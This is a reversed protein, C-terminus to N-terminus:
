LFIPMYPEIPPKTGLTVNVDVQSNDRIVTVILLDNPVTKELYSTAEDFNRVTTSNFAIIIDGERLIGESPGSGIVGYYQITERSTPIRIGYTATINNPQGFDYRLDYAYIGLYSQGVLHQAIWWEQYEAIDPDSLSYPQNGTIERLAKCLADGVYTNVNKYDADNLAQILVPVAEKAAPGISGLVNAALAIMKPDDNELARILAPEAKSGMSTLTVVAVDHVSAMALKAPFGNTYGGPNLTANMLAPIAETGICKLSYVAAIAVRTNGFESADLFNNNSDDIVNDTIAKSLAPIAESGLNSLARAAAVRILFNRNGLLHIFGPIAETTISVINGQSDLNLGSSNATKLADLIEPTLTPLLNPLPDYVYGATMTDLANYACESTKSSGHEYANVLASLMNPSVAAWGGLNLTALNTYGGVSCNLYVIETGAWSILEDSDNMTNICVDEEGWVKTLCPVLADAIAENIPTLSLPYDGVIERLPNTKYWKGFELTRRNEYALSVWVTAHAGTPASTIGGDEEKGSPNYNYWDAGGTVNITLTADFPAKDVVEIGLRSLIRATSNGVFNSYWSPENNDYQQNVVLSVKHLTVGVWDGTESSNLIPVTNSSIAFTGPAVQQSKLSGPYLPLIYNFAVIYSAFIVIIIVAVVCVVKGKSLCKGQKM